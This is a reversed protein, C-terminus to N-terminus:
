HKQHQSVVMYAGSARGFPRRIQTKKYHHKACWFQLLIMLEVNSAGFTDFIVFEVGSVNLIALTDPPRLSSLISFVIYFVANMNSCNKKPLISGINVCALTCVCITFVFHILEVLRKRCYSPQCNVAPSVYPVRREIKALYNTLRPARERENQVINRNDSNHISL